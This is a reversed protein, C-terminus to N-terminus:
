IRGISILTLLSSSEPTCIQALTFSSVNAYAVDKPGGLIIAVGATLEQLLYKKKSDIVGSNFIGILKVRPNHYAASYAEL